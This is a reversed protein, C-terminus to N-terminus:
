GTVEPYFIEEKVCTRKKKKILCFNDRPFGYACVMPGGRNIGWGKLHELRGCTGIHSGVHNNLIPDDGLGSTGLIVGQIM